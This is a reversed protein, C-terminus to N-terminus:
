TLVITGSAGDSERVIVISGGADTSFHYGPPLVREKAIQELRAVRVSMRTLAQYVDQEPIRAPM